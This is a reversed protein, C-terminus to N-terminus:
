FPTVGDISVFMGRGSADNTFRTGHFSPVITWGNIDFARGDGANPDLAAIAEHSLEGLKQGYLYQRVRQDIRPDSRQMYLLARVVNVDLSQGAFRPAAVIQDAVNLVLKALAADSMKALAYVVADAGLIWFMDFGRLADLSLLRASSAPTYAPHSM